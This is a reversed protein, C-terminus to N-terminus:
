YKHINDSHDLVRGLIKLTDIKYSQHDQMHSHWMFDAFKNPVIVKTPDKYYAPILHNPIKCINVLWNRFTPLEIWSYNILNSKFPM